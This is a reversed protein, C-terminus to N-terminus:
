EEKERETIKQKMSIIQEKTLSDWKINEENIM